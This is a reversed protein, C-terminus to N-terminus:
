FFALPSIFGITFRGTNYDKVPHDPTNLWTKAYDSYNYIRGVWNAYFRLNFDKFPYYEITPIYGWAVRINDTNKEPDASGGKWKAFDVMGIFALNIHKNVRYYFHVWHSYYLTNKVAYPFHITDAGRYLVDPVTASVIGTRDLDESSWKFDYEITFKGLRLQNGLAIYNMFIDQAETHLAYSWITNFKGKFFSGRWNIVFALPAKSETVGPQDGYLENFSKTRSDLVQLTFSHNQHFQYSVGVGTLFNDAYEIIDSYEYIDIPNYDFEYGGWDACMKGLSLNWKEGLTVRIYALDVSGYLHDLSQVDPTKTYRNRFRFYVKKHVQGRFELRFQEFRFKSGTYEGDLFANEFGFQMNAIMSVNKLLGQKEEPIITKYWTTDGTQLEHQQAKLAPSLLLFALIWISVYIKKM